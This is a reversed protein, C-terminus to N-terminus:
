VAEDRYSRQILSIADKMNEKLEELTDGQSIAGPYEVCRGSYGGDEEKVVIVSYSNRKDLKRRHLSKDETPEKTSLKSRTSLQRQRSLTSM